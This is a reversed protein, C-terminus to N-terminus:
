RIWIAANTLKPLRGVAFAGPNDHKVATVGFVLHLRAATRTLTVHVGGAPPNCKPNMHHAIPTLCDLSFAAVGDRSLDPTSALRLRNGQISPSLRTTAAGAASRPTRDYRSNHYSAM